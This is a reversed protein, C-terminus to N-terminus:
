ETKPGKLALTTAVKGELIPPAVIGFKDNPNIKWYADRAAEWARFSYMPKGNIFFLACKWHWIKHFIADFSVFEKDTFTMQHMVVGDKERKKYKPMREALAVILPYNPSRSKTFIVEIIM